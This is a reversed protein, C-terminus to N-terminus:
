VLVNALTQALLDLMVGVELHVTSKDARQADSDELLQALELRVHSLVPALLLEQLQAVIGPQELIENRAVVLLLLQLDAEGRDLQLLSCGGDDLVECVRLIRDQLRLKNLLLWGQLDQNPVM